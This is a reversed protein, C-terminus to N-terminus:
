QVELSSRSAAADLSTEDTPGRAYLRSVISWFEPCEHETLLADIKQRAAEAFEEVREPLIELLAAM